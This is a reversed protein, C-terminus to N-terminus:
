GTHTDEQDEDVADPYASRPGRVWEIAGGHADERGEDFSVGSVRPYGELRDVRRQTM